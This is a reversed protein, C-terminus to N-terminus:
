KTKNENKRITDMAKALIAKFDKKSPTKGSIRPHNIQNKNWNRKKAIASYEGRFEKMGDDYTPVLELNEMSKTHREMHSNFEGVPVDSEQDDNDSKLKEEFAEDLSQRLMGNSRQLSNIKNVTIRSSDLEEAREMIDVIREPNQFAGLTRTKNIRLLKGELDARMDAPLDKHKLLNVLSEAYDGGKTGDTNPSTPNPAVRSSIQPSTSEDVLGMMMEMVAKLNEKKSM